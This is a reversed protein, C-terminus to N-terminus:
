SKVKEQVELVCPHGAEQAYSIVEAVAAHRSDRDAAVMVITGPRLGGLLEKVEDPRTAKGWVRYTGDARVTVKFLRSSTADGSARAVEALHAELTGTNRASGAGMTVLLLFLFVDVMALVNPLATGISDNEKLIRM